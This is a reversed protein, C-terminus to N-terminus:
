ACSILPWSVRVDSERSASSWSTVPARRGTVAKNLQSLPMWTLAVPHCASREPMALPRTVARRLSGSGVAVRRMANVGQRVAVQQQWRPWEYRLFERKM